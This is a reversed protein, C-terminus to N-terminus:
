LRLVPRKGANGQLLSGLPSSAHTQRLVLNREFSGSHSTCASTNVTCQQRCQEEVGKNFGAAAPADSWMSKENDVPSCGLHTAALQDTGNLSHSTLPQVRWCIRVQWNSDRLRHPLM